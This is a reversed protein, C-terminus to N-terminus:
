AEARCPPAGCVRTGIGAHDSRDSRDCVWAPLWVGDFCTMRSLIRLAINLNTVDARQSRIQYVVCRLRDPPLQARQEVRAHRLGGTMVLCARSLQLETSDLFSWIGLVQTLPM